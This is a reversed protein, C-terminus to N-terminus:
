KILDVLEIFCGEVEYYGASHGYDWALRFCQEFKPNDEVDYKKALFEKLDELSFVQCSPNFQMNELEKM